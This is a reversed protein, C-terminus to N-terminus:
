EDFKKLFFEMMTFTTAHLPVARMLAFSFGKYLGRYGDKMVEIIGERFSIHKDRSAQIITKIRDQPYILSWACVGALTGYGFSHLPTLNNTREKLNNYVSFYIAFGPVERSWTASLGQFLSKLQITQGTQYLIKMREFPTVVVSASLGALAGSIINSETHKITNQFTGFVVAKELGVGFLPPLLGRYLKSLSLPIPRNSQICTKVTDFPHSALIGTMGSIYGFMFYKAHKLRDDTM